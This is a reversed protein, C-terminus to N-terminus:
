LLVEKYHYKAKIMFLECCKLKVDRIYRLSVGLQIRDVTISRHVVALLYRPRQLEVPLCSTPDSPKKVSTRVLQGQRVFGLARGTIRLHHCIWCYYM